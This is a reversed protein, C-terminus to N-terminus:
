RMWDIMEVMGDLKRLIWQHRNDEHQFHPDFLIAKIGVNEAGSVDAEMSDGIMISNEAKANALQLARYFVEPSPKSKGVEESCLIVDFFDIIGSNELKIFQVEKFGNTIVHLEYGQEKLQALTEKTNPFLTTQYPSLKVYLDAIKEALEPEKKNTLQIFTDEFRQVRLRDKAIQNKSYLYWLEANIKKYRTHFQRFSRFYEGLKQESYIKELARESNTEFDWLTRDLDFFIHKIM